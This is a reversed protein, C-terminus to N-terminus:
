ALEVRRGLMISEKIGEIVKHISLADEFKAYVSQQGGEVFERWASSLMGSTDLQETEVLEGDLFLQSPHIHLLSSTCEVSISGKEGDIIWSFGKRGPTSKTGGRCHLSVVAGSDKLTGTFAIQDFGTANTTEGILDGADTTLTVKPFRVAGTASVSEIDGLAYRFGGLFHGVSIDLLTQGKGEVVTDINSKRVKPGWYLLEEPVNMIVTTSLIRGIRGSNTLEKIKQITPSQKAQLGVMTRIGKKETAEAIERAEKLSVGLAWEVFVDKGAEIAPMVAQKHYPVRISVVVMDVNPDAAIGRYGIEGSYGKIKNGTLESWKKASAEASQASSTCLATITYKSSLPPQLLPPISANAAWGTTSSLGIVGLRIPSM